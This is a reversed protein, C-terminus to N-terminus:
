NHSNYHAEYFPRRGDLLPAMLKLEASAIMRVSAAATADAASGAGYGDLGIRSTTGCGGPPPVSRSARVVPCRTASFRLVPTTMSLRAPPPPVIPTPMTALANGSPNVMTMPKMPGIETLTLRM